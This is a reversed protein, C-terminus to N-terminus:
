VNGVPQIVVETTVTFLKGTGIMPVSVTQEPRVVDSLSVGPPPVHPLLATPVAATPEELPKTVPPGVGPVAVM